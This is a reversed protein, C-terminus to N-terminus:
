RLFKKELDGCFRILIHLLFIFWFRPEKEGRKDQVRGATETENGWSIKNKEAAVRESWRGWRRCLNCRWRYFIGLKNELFLILWRWFLWPLYIKIEVLVSMKEMAFQAGVIVCSLPDQKKKLLGLFLILEWEGSPVKEEKVNHEGAEDVEMEEEAEKNSPLNVPKEPNM